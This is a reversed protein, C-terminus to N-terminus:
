GTIVTLLENLVMPKKLFGKVGERRLLDNIQGNHLATGSIIFINRNKLTEDTALINIISYGSIVPMSIDLLVVDYQGQQIHRDRWLIMPLWPKV